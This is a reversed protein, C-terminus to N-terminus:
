WDQSLLVSLLTRRDKINSLSDDCQEIFKMYEDKCKDDEFSFLLNILDDPVEITPSSYEECRMGSLRGEITACRCFCKQFLGSENLVFYVGNNKHENQINMCYRSEINILYYREKLSPTCMVIDQVLTKRYHKPIAFLDHLENNSFWKKIKQVREDEGFLRTRYDSNYIKDYKKKGGVSEGSKQTSGKSGKSGKSRTKDNEDVDKQIDVWDPVSQTPIDSSPVFRPDCRISTLRIMMIEDELIENLLKEDLEGNGCIVDQPKYIRGIDYKGTGGCKGADCKKDKNRIGKCSKCRETKACGVMRLGNSLYVTKDFVDAWENYGEKRKGFKKDFWQIFGSRLIMASETNVILWPFLLHVGVKDYTTGYKEVGKKPETTCVIVTLNKYNNNKFQPYFNRLVCMMEDAIWSKIENYSKVNPEFIDLDAHFKFIETRREVIFNRVGRAVDAGVKRNFYDIEDLPVHLKGGDLCLHTMERNPQNPQNPQDGGRNDNKYIYFRQGWKRVGKKM